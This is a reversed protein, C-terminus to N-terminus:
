KEELKNFLKDINMEEIVGDTINANAPSSKINNKFTSTLLTGVLSNTEDDSIIYHVKGGHKYMLVFGDKGNEAMNM